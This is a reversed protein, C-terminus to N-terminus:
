ILNINIVQADLYYVYFHERFNVSQEACKDAICNYKNKDLDKNKM